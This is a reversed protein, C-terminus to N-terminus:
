TVLITMMMTMMMTMIRLGLGTGFCYAVLVGWHLLMQVQALHDVWCSSMGLTRLMFYSSTISRGGPHSPLGNCPKGGPNWWAERTIKTQWNTSRPPSLYQLNLLNRGIEKERKVWGAKLDLGRLGLIWCVLWWALIIELNSENCKIM